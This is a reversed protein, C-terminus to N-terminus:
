VTRDGRTSPSPRGSALLHYDHHARMFESRYTGPKTM